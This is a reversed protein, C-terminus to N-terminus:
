SLVICCSLTSGAKPTLAANWSCQGDVRYLFRYVAEDTLFAVHLSVASAVSGKDIVIYEDLCTLIIDGTTGLAACYEVPIIPVGMYTAYKQGAVFGAPRFNPDLVGGTGVAISSTWLEPEVSQNVLFVAKSRLPAYLRALMARLDDSLVRSSISRSVTIVCGSNLLGQPQNSGTGNIVADEARFTLELPLNRNIWAELATADAILEDTGYVFAGVKRLKLDMLRFKPKGSTLGLGQGLWGSVIGGFRSNDARSTEDIAPLLIGNSGASIPIRNVRSLIEGTEYARQIINSSREQAVLFGGESPVDSNMGTPGVAQMPKLLARDESTLVEDGGKLMLAAKRVAQLQRGFFGPARTTNDVGVQIGATVAAAASAATDGNVAPAPANRIAENASEAAALLEANEALRAEIAAIKGAGATFDAREAETMARNEAVAANGIAARATKADTLEAQLDTAKQRYAKLGTTM